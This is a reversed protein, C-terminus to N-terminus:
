GRLDVGITHYVCLAIWKRKIRNITLYSVFQFSINIERLQPVYDSCSLKPMASM